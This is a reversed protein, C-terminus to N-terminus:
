RFYLFTPVYMPFAHQVPLDHEEEADTGYWASPDKRVTMKVSSLGGVAGAALIDLAGIGASPLILRSGGAAAAAICRDLLGEDAAFSGVSTVLLDVGAALLREAHDVVTAHGAVELVIDCGLAIQMWAEPDNTVLPSAQGALEPRPRRVLVAPISIGAMLPDATCGGDAAAVSVGCRRLVDEGIAGMGMLGLRLQREAAGRPSGSAHGVGLRAGGPVGVPLAFVAALRQLRRTSCANM